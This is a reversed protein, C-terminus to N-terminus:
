IQPLIKMLIWDTQGSIHAFNHVISYRAISFSGEFIGTDPDPLLHSGFNLWNKSTRLYRQPLIKMFIHETTKAYLQLCASLCVSLCLFPPCKVVEMAFIFVCVIGFFRDVGVRLWMLNCYFARRLVLVPSTMDCSIVIVFDWWIVIFHLHYYWCERLWM